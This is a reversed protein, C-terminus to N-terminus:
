APNLSTIWNWTEKLGAGLETQASWQLHKEALKIDLVNSPVDVPRGPQYNVTVPRDINKKIEDVIENLSHGRGAGINFIRPDSPGPQYEAACVLARAADTVYIYDRVTEGDGFINIPKGEAAAGLFVGIVGQKARPNQLVGYPNSFRLVVYDLGWQTYFLYLYKEIALKTIGYSCIPETTHNEAIPSTKPVGYVTGGSSIFIVKKVNSQRCEQFLQVSDAINSRIDYVPDDNSTQPLTTYALHFVWDIDKVAAAIEGHNGLDGIQYDVTPLPERFRSPYRDIVRVSHGSNLLQDVLHCGIFGNGGIVLTKMPLINARGM